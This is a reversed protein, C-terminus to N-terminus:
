ASEFSGTYTAGAPASDNSAATEGVQKAIAAVPLSAKPTGPLAAVHVCGILARDAGFLARTTHQLDM